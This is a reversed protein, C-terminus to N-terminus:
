SEPAAKRKKHPSALAADIEKLLVRGIVDPPTDDEWDRYFAKADDAQLFLQMIRLTQPTM